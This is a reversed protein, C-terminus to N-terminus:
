GERDLCVSRAEGNEKSGCAKVCGEITFADCSRGYPTSITEFHTEMVNELGFTALIACGFLIARLTGKFELM